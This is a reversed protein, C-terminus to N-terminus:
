DICTLRLFLKIFFLHNDITWIQVIFVVNTKSRWLLWLMEYRKATLNWRLNKEANERKGNCFVFSQSFTSYIEWEVANLYKRRRNKRFKCRRLSTIICYYVDYCHWTQSLHARRKYESGINTTKKTLFIRGFSARGLGEAETSLTFGKMVKAWHNGAEIVVPSIQYSRKWGKKDTYFLLLHSNVRVNRRRSWLVSVCLLAKQRRATSSFRSSSSHELDQFEDVDRRWMATKLANSFLPLWFLNDTKRCIRGISNDPDRRGLTKRCSFLWDDYYHSPWDIEFFDFPVGKFLYWLLDLDTRGM